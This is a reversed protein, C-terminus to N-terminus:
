SCKSKRRSSFHSSFSEGDHTKITVIYEECKDPETDPLIATPSYRFGKANLEFPATIARSDRDARSITASQYYPICRGCAVGMRFMDSAGNLNSDSSYLSVTWPGLRQSDVLEAKPPADIMSARYAMDATGWLTGAAVLLVSAVKFIGMRDAQAYASKKSRPDIQDRTFAIRRVRRWWLWTGTLILFTLGVGFIAWVVKTTIGGFTGFHLPDATDIWRQFLTEETTSQQFMVSGDYPNVIIMNSRDRVLAASTQGQFRFAEGPQWPFEVKKVDLEPMARDATNLAAKLSIRPPAPGYERLANQTIIPTDLQIDVGVDALGKEILYWCGTLSIVAIFWLSWVGFLKHLDGWLVRLGQGLRLFFFKKWWGKHITIGTILMGLLVFSFAGVIYLGGMPFFLFRHYDRM